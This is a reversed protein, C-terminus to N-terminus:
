KGEPLAELVHLLKNEGSKLASIMRDMPSRLLYVIDAILEEKSKLHVLSELQDDGVYFAGDIYAGKLLPKNKGLDRFSKIVRASASNVKSLMLATPGLLLGLFPKLDKNEVKEISKELLTNKIVITEVELENAKRRINSTDKANLDAYDILYIFNYTELLVRLEEVKIEKEKKNM